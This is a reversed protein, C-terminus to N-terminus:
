SSAAKAQKNALSPITRGKCVAKIEEATLTEYELLATALRKHEREHKALIRKAEDMAFQDLCLFVCLCVCVCLSLSLPACVRVSM